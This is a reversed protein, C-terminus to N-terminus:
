DKVAMFAINVKWGMTDAIQYIRKFSIDDNRMWYQVSIRSVKLAEALQENSMGAKGMAERLFLLRNGFVQQAGRRRLAPDIVLTTTESLYSDEPIDYSIRFVCNTAEAIKFIKSLNTDDVMFWRAVGNRSIGIIKAIDSVSINMARMFEILFQMNKGQWNRYWSSKGEPSLAQEKM